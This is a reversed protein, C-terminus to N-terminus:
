RSAENNAPYPYQEAAFVSATNVPVGQSLSSDVRAIIMVLSKDM